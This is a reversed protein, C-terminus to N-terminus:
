AVRGASHEAIRLQFTAGLQENIAKVLAVLARSKGDSTSFHDEVLDDLAIALGEIQSLSRDTESYADHWLDKPTKDPM